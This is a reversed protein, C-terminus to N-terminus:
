MTWIETASRIWFRTLVFPGVTVSAVSAGAQRLTTGVAPQVTVDGSSAYNAAYYFAGVRLVSADLTYLRATSTTKGRAVNADASVYTYDVNTGSVVLAGPMAASVQAQLKGLASLVSDTAAIVANTATSLGTLLTDRVRAATHYLNTAGETLHDTTAAQTGSIRGKADRTLRVLAAGVGSDALDALGITPPGAVADGNAVTTQGAVATITADTTGSVRGYDDRTIGRLAGAGSDALEALDLDVRGGALTGTATIRDSGLVQTWKPLFNFPPITGPTGDPSGLATCIAAIAESASAESLVGASVLGDIRQFWSYWPGSTLERGAIPEQYRPFQPQRSM